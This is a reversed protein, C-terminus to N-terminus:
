HLSDVSKLLNNHLSSRLALKPSSILGIQLGVSDTSDVGAAFLSQLGYFLLSIILLIYRITYTAKIM